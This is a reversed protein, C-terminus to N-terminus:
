LSKNANGAVKRVLSRPALRTGFAMLKASLTPLCIAKNKDLAKVGKLAVKYADAGHKFMSGGEKNASAKEFGTKTPGPCLASVKIGKGKVEERLAESFSLIFAKSAYYTAMYPGAGFSAISAVNLIKGEKREIMSPLFVYTLQMLAAINLEVMGYQKNWDADAFATADGYGANNILTDVELENRRVYSAVEIAADKKSLDLPLIFVSIGDQKELEKQIEELKGKSRAVLLLDNKRSAYIKAFQLGLGSSAGTILTIKKMPIVILWSCFFPFSKILSLSFQKGKNRKRRCRSFAKAEDHPSFM